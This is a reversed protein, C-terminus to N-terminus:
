EAASEAVPHRRAAPDGEPEARELIAAKVAEPLGEWGVEITARNEERSWYFRSWVTLYAACFPDGWYPLLRGWMRYWWDWHPHGYELWRHLLWWHIAIQHYTVFGVGDEASGAASWEEIRPVRM